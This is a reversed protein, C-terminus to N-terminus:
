RPPPPGARRPAEGDEGGSEDEEDEDDEAGPRQPADFALIGLQFNYVTEATDRNRGRPEIHIRELVVPYRSNKIEELMRLTQALDAGQIRARTHRITFRGDTREPERQVDSIALPPADEANQNRERAKSELFAGLTPARRDYRAQAALQQARQRALRSRARQIDRLVEAIEGNEKELQSVSSSLLYLPLAIVLILTVAGLTGVLVRERDTFNEWIERVRDVM